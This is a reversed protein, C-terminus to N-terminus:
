RAEVREVMSSARRAAASPASSPVSMTASSCDAPRPRNWRVQTDGGPTLRYRESNSLGDGSTAECSDMIAGSASARASRRTAAPRPPATVILHGLSTRM